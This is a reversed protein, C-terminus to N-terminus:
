NVNCESDCLSIVSRRTFIEHTPTLFEDLLPPVGTDYVKRKLILKFMNTNFYEDRVM